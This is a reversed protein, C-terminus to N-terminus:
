TRQGLCNLEVISSAFPGRSVSPSTSSSGGNFTFGDSAAWGFRFALLALGVPMVSTLVWEPIGGPLLKGEDRGALVIDVSARALVATVAAAVANSFLRAAQRARGSGLLEATSLTLHQSARGALLAGLFAMFLTAQRVWEGSGPVHIGGLPRGLAEVLPVVTAAALATLFLGGELRDLLPGPKL